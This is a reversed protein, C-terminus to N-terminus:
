HGLILRPVRWMKSRWCKGMILPPGQHPRRNDQALFGSFFLFSSSGSYRWAGLGPWVSSWSGTTPWRRRRWTRRPRRRRTTCTQSCWSSTTWATPSYPGSRSTPAPPPSGSASAVPSSTSSSRGAHSPFPRTSTKPSSQVLLFFLWARLESIERRM